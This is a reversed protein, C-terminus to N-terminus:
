AVDGGVVKRALMLTAIPQSVARKQTPTLRGWTTLVERASAMQWLHSLSVLAAESDEGFRGRLDAHAEQMRRADSRTTRSASM